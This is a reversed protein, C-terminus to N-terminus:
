LQTVILGLIATIYAALTMRQMSDFRDDIRDLRREIRDFRADVQELQKDVGKFGDDVRHNLYDLREDTWADRMAEM